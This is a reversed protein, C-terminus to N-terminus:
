KVPNFTGNMNYCDYLVKWTDQERKWVVLYKGVNQTDDPKAHPAFYVEGFDSAMDRGSAVEIHSPKFELWLDPTSEYAAEWRARIAAHGRAAQNEPWVVSGDKAYFSIVREVDKAHAAKSWEADLARITAEDTDPRKTSMTM